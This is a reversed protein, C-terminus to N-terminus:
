RASNLRAEALEVIRAIAAAERQPVHRAAEVLVRLCRTIDRDKIQDGDPVEGDQELWAEILQQAQTIIAQAESTEMLDFRRRIQM